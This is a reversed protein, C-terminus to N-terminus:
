FGIVKEDNCHNCNPLRLNSVDLLILLIISFKFMFIDMCSINLVLTKFLRLSLRGSSFPEMKVMKTHFGLVLFLFAFYIAVFM